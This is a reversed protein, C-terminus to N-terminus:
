RRDAAVRLDARVREADRDKVDTSGASSWPRWVLFVPVALAILAIMM